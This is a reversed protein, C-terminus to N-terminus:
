RAHTVTIETDLCDAALDVLEVKEDLDVTLRWRTKVVTWETVYRCHATNDAPLWEAPDQDAKSRNQAATM